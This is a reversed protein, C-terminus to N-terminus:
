KFKAKVERMVQKETMQMMGLFSAAWFNRFGFGSPAGKVPQTHLITKTALDFFAIHGRALDAGKDLAEIVVVVGIGDPYEATALAKVADAVEQQGITHSANIVIKDQDVLTHGRAVIEFDLKMNPSMLARRWNYKDSESIMLGNWADLYHEKIKYPDTFGESGIMRAKTFDLGFFVVECRKNLFDQMTHQANAAFSLLFILILILPSTPM